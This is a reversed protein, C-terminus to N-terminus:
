RLRRKSKNITQKQQVQEVERDGLDEFPIKDNPNATSRYERLRDDQYYHKGDIKVISLQTVM